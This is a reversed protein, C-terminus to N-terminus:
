ATLMAGLGAPRTRRASVQSLLSRILTPSPKPKWGLIRLKEDPAGPALEPVLIVEAMMALVLDPEPQIQAKRLVHEIVLSGSHKGYCGVEAGGVGESLRISLDGSPDALRRYPHRVRPQLREPRNRTRRSSPIGSLREMTLALERLKEYKFGPLELDVLYRLQLLVQHM